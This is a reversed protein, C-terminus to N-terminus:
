KLGALFQRVFDNGINDTWENSKQFVQGTYRRILENRKQKNYYKLDDQSDLIDWYGEVISVLWFTVLISGSSALITVNTLEKNWAKRADKQKQQTKGDSILGSDPAFPLVEKELAEYAESLFAPRLTNKVRLYDLLADQFYKAYDILETRNNPNSIIIMTILFDYSVQERVDKLTWGFDAILREYELFIYAGSSVAQPHGEQIKASIKKLESLGAKAFEVPLEPSVILALERSHELFLIRYLLNNESQHIKTVSIPILEETSESKEYAKKIPEGKLAYKILNSLGPNKHGINQKDTLNGPETSM